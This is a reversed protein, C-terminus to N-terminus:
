EERASHRSVTAVIGILLPMLYRQAAVGWNMTLSSRLAALDCRTVVAVSAGMLGQRSCTVLSASSKPARPRCWASGAYGM